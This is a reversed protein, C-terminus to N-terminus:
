RSRLRACFRRARARARVAAQSRGFFRYRFPAYAGRSMSEAHTVWTRFQPVPLGPYSPMDPELSHSLDILRTM